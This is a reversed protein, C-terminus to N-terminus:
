MGMGIIKSIKKANIYGQIKSEAEEQTNADVSVKYKPIGSVTVIVFFQQM